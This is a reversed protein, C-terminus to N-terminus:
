LPQEGKGCDLANNLNKAKSHQETLGRQLLVNPFESNTVRRMHAKRGPWGRSTLATM